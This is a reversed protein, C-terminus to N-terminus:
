ELIEYKEEQHDPDLEDLCVNVTYGLSTRIADLTKELCPDDLRGIVAYIQQPQSKGKVMIKKMPEVLFINKVLEYSEQSILIDTCFPKNLSEIRSALNVADGIVTYEMREISGIQGAVVHGTNIGCGIRIPPGRRDRNFETLAKRMMLACNIANETDNGVSYPAGWVAMVADGIFKDVVGHTQNVCSVMRTMYDNLFEVVQHPDLNESIQTFSRIDSFFIAATKSEGGLTLDDKLVREALEKNVFKGFATKIKEREALGKGMESFAKTLHGLEDQSKVPISVFFDGQAIRNTGEVLNRIPVTLTRSFLILLLVSVSLVLITILFDQRQIQYVGEMAKDVPVLSFVTLFGGFFRKYSGLYAVGDENYRSQKNNIANEMSDKVIPSGQLNTRKLVAGQDEGALLEGNSTTIFNSYLERAHITELLTDMTAYIITVSEAEGPALMAQPVILAYVPYHFVPSVNRIYNTGTFAINMGASLGSLINEAQFNAGLNKIRAMDFSSEAIHFGTHDKRVVAVGLLSPDQEYFISDLSSTKEKLQVGGELVSGLLRGRDEVSHLETEVQRSILEARDLTDLKVNRDIEQSFFITALITMGGLSAILLLGIISILKAGLPFNVTKM